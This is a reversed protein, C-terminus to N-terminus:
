LRDVMGKMWSRLGPMHRSAAFLLNVLNEHSALRQLREGRILGKGLKQWVLEDYQRNFSADFRGSQFCGLIHSAAMMGTRLANAVGEGTLPNVVGAADGALLFADGSLQRNIGAYPLPHGLVPGMIEAQRFLPALVPDGNVWHQFDKKPRIGRERIQKLPLGMGVNYVGNGAPFIWFYGPLIQKLFYFSLTDGPGGTEVNRFYARVAYAHSAPFTRNGTIRRTIVSTAGTAVVGIRAAYTKSGVRAYFGDTGSATATAGEGTVLLINEQAAVQKYLFADFHVRRMVYGAPRDGFRSRFDLLFHNEPPYYLQMSRVPHRTELDLFQQYGMGPIKQLLNLVDPGLADGCTKERPYSEKEVLAVRLGSGGLMLACALGAPGGGLILVDTDEKTSNM